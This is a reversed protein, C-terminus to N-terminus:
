ESSAPVPIRLETGIPLLDPSQLRDRNAEFIVSFRKSSGLYRLALSSLTDGDAIRHLAFSVKREAKPKPPEPPSAMVPPAPPQYSDARMSPRWHDDLLGPPSPSPAGGQARATSLPKSAQGNDVDAEIKGSLHAPQTSEEPLDLPLPGLTKPSKPAHTSVRPVSEDAHRRSLLAAGTGAALLAVAILLRRPRRMFNIENPRAPPASV